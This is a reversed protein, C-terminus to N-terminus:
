GKAATERAVTSSQHVAAARAAPYSRDGDSAANRRESAVPTRSSGGRPPIVLPSVNRTAWSSPRIEFARKVKQVESELM